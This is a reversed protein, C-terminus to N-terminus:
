EITADETNVLTVKYPSMGANDLATTVIAEADKPDFEFTGDGNKWADLVVTLTCRKAEM